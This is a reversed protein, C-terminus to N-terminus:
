WFMIDQKQLICISSSFLIEDRSAMNIQAQTYVTLLPLPSKFALTNTKSRVLMQFFEPPPPFPLSFMVCNNKEIQGTWFEVMFCYPPEECTPFFIKDVYPVYMWRCNLWSCSIVLSFHWNPNQQRQINQIWSSLKISSVVAKFYAAIM